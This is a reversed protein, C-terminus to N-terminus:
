PAVRALHEYPVEVHLHPGSSYGYPSNGKYLEPLVRFGKAVADNIIRSVEQFSKGSVGVDIARGSYHLSNKVHGSKPIGKTDEHSTVPLGLGKAWGLLRSLPRVDPLVPASVGPIGPKGGAPAQVPSTAAGEAKLRRYFLFAGFVAAVVLLLGSLARDNM